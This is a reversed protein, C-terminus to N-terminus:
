MMTLERVESVETVSNLLILKCRINCEGEYVMAGTASSRCICKRHNVLCWVMLVYLPTSICSWANKVVVTSPPSRDTERVPRKVEPSLSVPVWQIPLQTLSLAPRSATAFLFSGAGAPFRVGTTWDM